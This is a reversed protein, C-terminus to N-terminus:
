FRVKRGTVVKAQQKAMMAARWNLGHGRTSENGAAVARGDVLELRALLFDRIELGLCVSFAWSEGAIVVRFECLAISELLKSRLM